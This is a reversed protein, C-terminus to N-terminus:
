LEPLLVVRKNKAVGKTLTPLFCVYGGGDSDVALGVERLAGRSFWCFIGQKLFEDRSRYDYFLPLNQPLEKWLRDRTARLSQKMGNILVEPLFQHGSKLWDFRLLDILLEGDARGAVLECLLSNLYDQTKARTSFGRALALDLLREFFAFADPETRRLYDILTVFFRNNHFAEVVEGFWYLRALAEQDLWRTAM